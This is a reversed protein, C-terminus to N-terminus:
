ASALFSGERPATRESLAINDDTTTRTSAIPDRPPLEIKVPDTM